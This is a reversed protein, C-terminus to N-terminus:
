WLRARRALELLQEDATKQGLLGSRSVHIRSKKGLEEM